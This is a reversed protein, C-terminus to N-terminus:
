SHQCQCNSFNNLRQRFWFSEKGNRRRHFDAPTPSFLIVGKVEKVPEKIRDLKLKDFSPVRKVFLCGPSSFCGPLFDLPPSYNGSYNRQFPKESIGDCM